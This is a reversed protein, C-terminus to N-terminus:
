EKIIQQKMLNFEGKNKIVQIKIFLMSKNNIKTEFDVVWKVYNM